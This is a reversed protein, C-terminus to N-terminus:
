TRNSKGLPTRHELQKLVSFLYALIHIEVCKTMPGSSASASSPVAASTNTNHSDIGHHAVLLQQTTNSVPAQSRLSSPNARLQEYRKLLPVKLEALSDLIEQGHQIQDARSVVLILSPSLVCQSIVVISAGFTAGTSRCYM